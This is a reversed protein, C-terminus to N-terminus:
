LSMNNKLSFKGDIVVLLRTDSADNKNRALCTFSGGIYDSNRTDLELEFFTDRAPDSINTHWPYAGGECRFVPGSNGYSIEAFGANSRQGVIAQTVQIYMGTPDTTAGTSLVSNGYIQVGDSGIEEVGFRIFPDDRLLQADGGVTFLTSCNKLYGFGLEGGIKQAARAIDELRMPYPSCTGPRESSPQYIGPSQADQPVQQQQFYFVEEPLNSLVQCGAILSIATFTLAAKKALFMQKNTV